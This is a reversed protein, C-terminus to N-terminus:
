GAKLQKRMKAATDTARYGEPVGEITIVISDAHDARLPAIQQYPESAFWERAADVSPFGIIIVDGPLKGEHTQHRTTHVLWRGGYPEFTGEIRELYEVIHPGMDVNELYGIAYGAPVTDTTNM